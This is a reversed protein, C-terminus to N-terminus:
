LSRPQEPPDDKPSQKTASPSRAASLRREAQSVRLQANKVAALLSPDGELRALEESARDIAGTDANASGLGRIAAEIKAPQEEDLRRAQKGANMVKVAFQRATTNDDKPCEVVSAVDPGDISLYITGTKKKAALAFVGFALLRTATFRSSLQADVSAQVGGVRGSGHPTDIWREYLTVGRYAALRRGKTDKAENLLKQADAVRMRHAKAAQDVKAKAPKLQQDRSRTAERAEARAAKLEQQAEVEEASRGARKRALLLGGVVAAVLIVVIVAVLAVDM